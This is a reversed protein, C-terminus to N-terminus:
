WPKMGPPPKTPRRVQRQLATPPPMPLQRLVDPPTSKPPPPKKKPPPPKNRPKRRLIWEYLSIASRDGPSDILLTRLFTLADDSDGAAYYAHALNFLADRTVSPNRGELALSLEKRADENKHLALLCTGANFHLIASLAPKPNRAMARKYITLANEVRGAKFSKLAKSALGAPSEARLAGGSLFLAALLLIIFLRTTGRDHKQKNNMPRKRFTARRRDPVMFACSLLILAPFLFWSFQDQRKLRAKTAYEKHKLHKFEELFHPVVSGSGSLRWYRGDTLLAIRRLIGENLKSVAPAGSEPDRLPKGDPGPVFAGKPSGVGVCFVKIGRGAAKRAAALADNGMDGGDSFLLIIRDRDRNRPFLACAAQLGGGIDTGQIPILNTDAIDLLMAVASTDETLPSLTVPVGSFAVLGVRDSRDSSLFSRIEMRSRELRSPTADTAAMSRSTDLLIVVDIGIRHINESVEGWQPRAFAVFTLALASWLAAAKLTDWERAPPHSLKRINDMGGWLVTKKHSRAFRFLALLLLFPLAALLYFGPTNAFLSM